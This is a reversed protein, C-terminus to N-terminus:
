QRKFSLYQARSKEIMPRIFDDADTLCYELYEAVVSRQEATFFSFRDRAYDNDYILHFMLDVTLTKNLEAALYAPLHFRMGEADFFSLASSHKNLEEVSLRSWDLAEEGSRLKRLTYETAYDDMAEAQHLGIGDGLVVAAFATHIRKILELAQQTPKRHRM